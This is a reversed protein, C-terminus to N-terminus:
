EAGNPSSVVFFKVNLPGLMLLAVNVNTVGFCSRVTCAYLPPLAELRVNLQGPWADFTCAIPAPCSSVTEVPQVPVHVVTVIALV